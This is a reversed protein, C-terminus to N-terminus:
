MCISSTCNTTLNIFLSQRCCAASHLKCQILLTSNPLVVDVRALGTLYQRTEYRPQFLPLRRLNFGATYWRMKGRKSQPDVQIFSSLLRWWGSMHWQLTQHIRWWSLGKQSTMCRVMTSISSIQFAWTLKQFLVGSNWRSNVRYFSVVSDSKAILVHSQSPM